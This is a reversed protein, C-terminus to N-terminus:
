PSSKLILHYSSLFPFSLCNTSVVSLVPVGSPFVSEKYELSQEDFLETCPMSVVRSAISQKALSSAVEVALSVESGTAVLVIRPATPPDLLM